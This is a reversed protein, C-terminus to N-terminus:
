AAGAAAGPPRRRHPRNRARHRGAGPRRQDGEHTLGTFLFLRQGGAVFANLAPDNVIHVSVADNELGAAEFLPKAYTRIANEIEADRILSLRGQQASAAQWLAATPTMLASLALIAVIRRFFIM